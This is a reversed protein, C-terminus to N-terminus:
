SMHKVVAKGFETTSIPTVDDLQRALDYTVEKNVIAGQLGKHILESAEDWGLYELMIAASLLLSGPNVKDMNTYKPATGHTAEAVFVGTEYNINAGPAMGIGGVLAAAADSLYDGNLNMTALVSFESSRLLIHQFTVDAIRDNVLLKGEPMNGNYDKWLEDETVIFDRFEEKAVEYGWNKFAGETYKMINGKHVLTVVPKKKAIAYQIAARVLRKSGSLSIPKIGIGSDDNITKGMSRLLEILQKQEPDTHKFEIGSYVDESNERFITLDVEEPYKIRTPTGQYYRVPRVCTYLDLIQRIGVNLSRFGEGIPTTLPGKITVLYENIAKITDQPLYANRQEDVPRKVLEGDTLNPHYFSRAEDGCYIKFWTIKRTGGYAKEVAANVTPIMANTIDPGIGDGSIYPIIPNNPVILKGDQITIKEGDTPPTIKEYM